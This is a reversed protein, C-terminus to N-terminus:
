PTAPTHINIYRLCYINTYRLTCIEGILCDCQHLRLIINSNFYNYCTNYNLLQSFSPLVKFVSCKICKHRREGYSLFDIKSPM